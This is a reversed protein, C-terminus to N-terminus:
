KPRVEKARVEVSRAEDLRVEVARGEGARDEGVRVGFISIISSVGSYTARSYPTVGLCNAAAFFRIARSMAASRLAPLSVSNVPVSVGGRRFDASEFSLRGTLM